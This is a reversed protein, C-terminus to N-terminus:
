PDVADTEGAPQPAWPDVIPPMGEIVEVNRGALGERAEVEEGVAVLTIETAAASTHADALDRMAAERAKAAAADGTLQVYTDDDLGAKDLRADIETAKSHAATAEAGAKAAIELGHDASTRHKIADDLLQARHEFDTADKELDEASATQRDAEAGLGMRRFKTAEDRDHAAEQRLEAADSRFRAADTADQRRSAADLEPDTEDVM